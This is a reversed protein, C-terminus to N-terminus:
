PELVSKSAGIVRSGARLEAQVSLGAHAPCPAVVQLLLKEVCGRAEPTLAPQQKKVEARTAKGQADFWVQWTSSASADGKFTPGLCAAVEREHVPEWPALSADDVLPRFRPEGEANKYADLYTNWSATVVSKGDPTLVDAPLRELSLTWRAGRLKATARADATQVLPCVCGAYARDALDTAECRKVKGAADVEVLLELEHPRSALCAIVADTIVHPAIAILADADIGDESGFTPSRASSRLSDRPRATVRQSALGGVLGCGGEDVEPPPATRTHALAAELATLPPQRRDFSALGLPQTEAELDLAARGELALTCGGDTNCTVTATLVPGPEWRVLADYNSLPRGCVAGTHVDLGRSARELEAESQDIPVVPIQRAAAWAAILKMAAVREESFLGLGVVPDVRYPQAPAAVATLAALVLARM